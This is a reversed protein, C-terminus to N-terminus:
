RKKLEKPEFIKLLSSKKSRHGIKAQLWQICILTRTLRYLYTLFYKMDTSFIDIHLLERAYTPTPTVGPEQKLTYREYEAKSCSKCNSVFKNVLKTM